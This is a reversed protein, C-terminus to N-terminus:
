RRDAGGGLVAQALRVILLSVVITQVTLCVTRCTFM